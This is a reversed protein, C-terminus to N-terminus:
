DGAGEDNNVAKDQAEEGRGCGPGTHRRQHRRAPFGPMPKPYAPSRLRSGGTEGRGGHSRTERGSGMRTEAPKKTMPKDPFVQDM